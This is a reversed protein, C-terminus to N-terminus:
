NFLDNLVQFSKLQGFGDIHLQYYQIMVKLLEKMQLHGLPLFDQYHDIMNNKSLCDSMLKSLPETIYYSHEPITDKFSGEKLNFIKNTESFSNLPYFGLHKTLEIMFYLHFDSYKQTLHDLLNISGAIFKFLEISSVDERISKNLVENIFLLISSKRIEFPISIFQYFPKIEKIKHLNNKKSQYAVIDVPTLHQLNGSKIKSNQKRVGHILYSQLGLQETYIKVIIDSEGYKIQNLVIGKTKYIM